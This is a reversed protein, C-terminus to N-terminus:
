KIFAKIIKVDQLPKDQNNTPVKAISDVIDMGSIVEGFVPHKGPSSSNNWDLFTNDALNIFFQSSGSNPQGTNAM